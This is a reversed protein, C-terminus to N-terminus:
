GRVPRWEVAVCTYTVIQVATAIFTSAGIVAIVQICGENRGAYGEKGEGVVM